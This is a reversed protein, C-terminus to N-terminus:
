LNIKKIWGAIAEALEKEKDCFGHSGGYIVASDFKETNKAKEKFVKIIEKPERDLYKDEEGFVVLMQKKIKSLAKFKAGPIDYPFTDESSGKTYLSLFRKASFPFQNGIKPMLENEKGNKKMKKAKLILIKLKRDFDDGLGKKFAARDCVPSLLIVAKAYKSHFKSFYYAAKNAGTSIGAVIVKSFGKSKLFKVGAEIDFVCDEFKEFAAGSILWKYGKKKRRDQKRVEAVTDHGRNNFCALGFGFSNFKEAFASLTKYPNYFNGSLGHVFLLAKKSRKKSNFFVGDLAVRDKAIIRQLECNM